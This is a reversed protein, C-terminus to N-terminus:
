RSAPKQTLPRPFGCPPAYSAHRIRSACEEVEIRQSAVRRANEGISLYQAFVIREQANFGPSAASSSATCVCHTETRRLASDNTSFISHLCLANRHPSARAQPQLLHQALAPHKQAAFSATTPQSSTTYFWDTKRSSARGRPRLLHQAFVTRKQAAFRLSKRSFFISHLCLINRHPSARQPQNLPHQTFVPQRAHPLTARPPLLQAFVTRRQPVFRPRATSSSATRQRQDLLHQAFVTRKQAAFRLSAASSSATCACYTEACRVRRSPSTPCAESRAAAVMLPQGELLFPRTNPHRPWPSISYRHRSGVPSPGRTGIHTQCHRTKRCNSPMRQPKAHRLASRM